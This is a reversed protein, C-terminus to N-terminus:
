ANKMADCLLYIFTWFWFKPKTNECKLKNISVFLKNQKGATVNRKLLPWSNLGFIIIMTNQNLLALQFAICNCKIYIFNQCDWIFANFSTWQENTMPILAFDDDNNESDKPNVVLFYSHICVTNSCIPTNM